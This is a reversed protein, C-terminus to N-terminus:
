SREGSGCGSINAGAIDLVAVSVDPDKMVAREGCDSNRENGGLTTVEGNESVNASEPSSSSEIYEKPECDESDRGTKAASCSGWPASM